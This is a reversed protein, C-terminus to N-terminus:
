PEPTDGFDQVPSAMTKAGSVGIDDVIRRIEAEEAPTLSVQLAAVNEELFAIRKTGPIPFIDDGQALLWALALQAPTCPAPQHARALAAIADVLVLNKAFNDGQFRPIRRRIDTPGFDDPSRIQGTLFGRGVPSYAFTAAGLARCTKLLDPGGAGEIDTTFVSYEVQVAAVPHVAHARRLTASSPASLGIYKIKGEGRLKVLEAMTHEIPTKGDVRHVYFLDISDVGMRQLSLECSKRANEPSSDVVFAAQQTAPDTTFGLGFKSVLFIDARREPHLRFWKGLLEESDGYLHATDWNVCGIEWARDLM